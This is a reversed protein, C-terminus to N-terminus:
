LVHYKRTGNLLPLTLLSHVVYRVFRYCLANSVGGLKSCRAKSNIMPSPINGLWAM